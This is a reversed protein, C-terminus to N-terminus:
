RRAPKCSLCGQAVWSNFTVANWRILGGFRCPQPIKGTDALRYVTRGSCKLIAALDDATLFIQTQTNAAPTVDNANTETDMSKGSPENETASM